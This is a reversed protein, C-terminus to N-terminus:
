RDIFFQKSLTADAYIIAIKGRKPLQSRKLNLSECVINAFETKRTSYPGQPQKYTREDKTLSLKRTSVLLIDEKDFLSHMRYIYLKKM